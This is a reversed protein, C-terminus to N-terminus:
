EKLLADIANRINQPSNRYRIIMDIEKSSIQNQVTGQLDIARVTDSRCLLYDMDVNFVDCLAEATARSPKRHGNEYLSIANYTVNVKKALEDGTLDAESRLRKLRESFKEM